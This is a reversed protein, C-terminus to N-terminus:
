PVVWNGYDDQKVTWKGYKHELEKLNELSDAIDHDMGFNPVYYDLPPGKEKKFSFTSNGYKAEAEKTHKLSTLIDTDVGFDPVFYDVEHDPKVWSSSSIETANKHM